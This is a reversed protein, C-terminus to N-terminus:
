TPLIMADQQDSVDSKISLMRDIPQLKQVTIIKSFNVRGLPLSLADGSGTPSLSPEQSSTYVVKARKKLPFSPFNAM